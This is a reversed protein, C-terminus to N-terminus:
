KRFLVNQVTKRNIISHWSLMHINHLSIYPFSNNAFFIGSYCCWVFPTEELFCHGNLKGLSSVICNKDHMSEGSFFCNKVLVLNDHNCQLSQGLMLYCVLNCYVLIQSYHFKPIGCQRGETWVWHNKEFLSFQEENCFKNLKTITTIECRPM